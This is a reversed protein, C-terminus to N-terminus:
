EDHLSSIRKEIGCDKVSPKRSVVVAEEEHDDKCEQGQNKCIPKGANEITWIIKEEETM